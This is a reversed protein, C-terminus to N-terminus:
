RNNTNYKKEKFNVHFLAPTLFLYKLIFLDCNIDTKQVSNYNIISFYINSM